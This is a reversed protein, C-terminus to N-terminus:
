PIWHGTDALIKRGAPTQIFAVFQSAVVPRRSETVVFLRKFYRYEGSALNKPTPDKGDLRLARLKRRESLILTLAAPGIAGPIRELDDAAEQDTVSIRIGPRKGALALAAAMEASLNRIMQSDSDSAPRLVLRVPSGDPWTTQQGAYIAVLQALTTEVIRSKAGVAFVFPTRGYEFERISLKLEHEKLPRSSVAVDIAASAVAQIGGASGLSPVIKIKIDPRGAAFAEALLQMTGLASGTGGIRLEDAGASGHWACLLLATAAAVGRWHRSIRCLSKPLNM